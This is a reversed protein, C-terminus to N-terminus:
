EIGSLRRSRPTNNEHSLGKDQLFRLTHAPVLTELRHWNKTRFLARVQSASIAAKDHEKRKIEIVEIPPAAIPAQALWYSMSRNYQATLPCLPESGVFRRTIGLAPAIYHRFLYLDIEPYSQEAIHTDKLFYTPFTAKSIIYDSGAHLSINSLDAIGQEVLRFRERYSFPPAEEQLIFLHLHDCYEQAQEILYRHGLTFPNANMVIAGIHRGKVKLSRWYECQKHLRSASNEMLIVHPRATALTFFGCQYFQQEYEPKTFVFLQPYGLEYALKILEGVLRLALGTHRLESRVAVCKIIKPAIGGCALIHGEEDYAVIFSLINRDMSLENQALFDKIRLYEKEQCRDIRGLQM